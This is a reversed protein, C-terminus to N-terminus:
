KARCRREYNGKDALVFTLCFSSALGRRGRGGSGGCEQEPRALATRKDRCMAGVTRATCHVRAFSRRNTQGLLLPSKVCTQEASVLGKMTAKVAANANSCTDLVQLATNDRFLVFFGNFVFAHACVYVCGLSPTDVGFRKWKGIKVDGYQGLDANVKGLGYDLAALQQVGRIRTESCDDGSHLPLLASLLVHDKSNQQNPCLPLALAGHLVVALRLIM